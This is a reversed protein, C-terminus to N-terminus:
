ELQKVQEVKNKKPNDLTLMVHKILGQPYASYYEQFNDENSVAISLKKSKPTKILKYADVEALIKLDDSHYKFGINNAVAQEIWKAQM